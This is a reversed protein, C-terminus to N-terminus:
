ASNKAAALLVDFSSYNPGMSLMESQMRQRNDASIFTSSVAPSAAQNVTQSGPQIVTQQSISTPVPQSFSSHVPQNVSSDFTIPNQHSEPLGLQHPYPNSGQNSGGSENESLSRKYSDLTSNDIKSMRIIARFMDVQGMIKEYAAHLNKNQKELEEVKGDLASM